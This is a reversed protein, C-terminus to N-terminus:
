TFLCPRVDLELLQSSIKFVFYVQNGSLIKFSEIIQDPSDSDTNESSMFDLFAEFTVYGHKNPDVKQLIKQFDM